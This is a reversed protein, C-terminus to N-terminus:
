GGLAIGDRTVRLPARLLPEGDASKALKKLSAWDGDPPVRVVVLTDRDPVLAAVEEGAELCGPVLLLRAADFTDGSKLLSLAGGDLARRVISRDFTAGLNERARAFAEAAALGLEALMEEHVYAVSAPADLVLVAVLGPVASPFAVLKRGMEGEARALWAETVLRPRLRARDVEGVKREGPWDRVTQILVDFVPKRAEPKNAVRTCERLMRDFSIIGPHDGVKVRLGDPQEELVEIDPAQARLHALFERQVDRRWARGLRRMAFFLGGVALLVWAWVPVNM